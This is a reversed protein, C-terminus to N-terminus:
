VGRRLRLKGMQRETRQAKVYKISPLAETTARVHCKRQSRLTPEGLMVLGVHSKLAERAKREGVNGCSITTILTQWQSLKGLAKM